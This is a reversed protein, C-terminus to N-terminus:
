RKIVVEKIFKLYQKTWLSNSIDWQMESNAFDSKFNKLNKTILAAEKGLEYRLNNTIPNLKSWRKGEIWSNIRFYRIFGKKDRFISYNLGSKSLLNKPTKLGTKKSLHNLLKTQFVIFNLDTNKPYIKLYYNKGKKTILRYNLDKEGDLKKLTCTFGYNINVLKQIEKFSFNFNSNAQIGM